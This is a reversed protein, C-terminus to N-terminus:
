DAWPAPRAFVPDSSLDSIYGEWWLEYKRHVLQFRSLERPDESVTNGMQDEIGLLLAVTDYILLTELRVPFRLDLKDADNGSFYIPASDAEVVLGATKAATFPPEILIFEGRPRWRPIVGDNGVTNTSLLAVSLGIRNDRVLPILRTGDDSLMSVRRIREAGEPKTYLRLDKAIDVSFSDTNWGEQSEDMQGARLDLSANWCDLLDNETVDSNAEDEERM